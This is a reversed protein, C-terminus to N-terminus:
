NFALRKFVKEETSPMELVSVKSPRSYFSFSDNNQTFTATFQIKAGYLSKITEHDEISDWLKNPFTGFVKSGNDLKVLMKITDGYQGEQIKTNILEGQVAQKGEPAEGIEEPIDDLAEQIILMHEDIYKLIHNDITNSSTGFFIRVHEVEKIDYSQQFKIFSSKPLESNGSSLAESLENFEDILYDAIVASKDSQRSSYPYFVSELLSSDEFPIYQGKSYTRDSVYDYYGDVPAHWRGHHDVNPSVDDNYESIAQIHRELTKEALRQLKAQVNMIHTVLSVNSM